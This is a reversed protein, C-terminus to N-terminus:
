KKVNRDNQQDYSQAQRKYVDLLLLPEFRKVIALYLLICSVLIMVLCLPNQGIQAFGTSQLFNMIAEM